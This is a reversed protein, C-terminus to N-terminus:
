TCAVEPRFGPADQNGLEPYAAIAASAHGPIEIEPIIIIGLSHACAVIDRVEDQTYFHAVPVGDQRGEGPYIETSPRYNGVQTLRPYARIELRWGQDDTLHWHLRNLKLRAMLRLMKKITEAGLPYRACDLMLGRHALLPEDCIHLAPLAPRGASDRLTAQALTQAVLPLAALEHVSVSIHEPTIRLEYWEPNGGPRLSLTVDGQAEEPLVPLGAAQLARIFARGEPSHSLAADVRIGESLDFGCQGGPALSLERPAPIFAPRETVPASPAAPALPCLLLPLLPLLARKM